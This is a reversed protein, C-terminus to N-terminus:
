KGVEAVWTISTRLIGRDILPKSSGKQAITSEANPPAIGASIRQQIEGAIVSGLADFTKRLDGGPRFAHVASLRLRKKIKANNQDVYDRLWSRRPIKVSNSKGAIETGFEHIAAIYAIESDAGGFIGVRVAVKKKLDALVQNAGNDVVKVRSSM